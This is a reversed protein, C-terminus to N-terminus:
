VRTFIDINLSGLSGDRLFFWALARDKNEYWSFWYSLRYTKKTYGELSPYSNDNAIVLDANLEYLEHEPIAGDYYHFKNWRDGRYYWPLPWTNTSVLATRDTADILAM